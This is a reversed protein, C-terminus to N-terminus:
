QKILYNMIKVANKQAARRIAFFHCLSFTVGQNTMADRGCPLSAPHARSALACLSLFFTARVRANFFVHFIFLSLFGARFFHRFPASPTGFIIARWEPMKQDAFGIHPFEKM